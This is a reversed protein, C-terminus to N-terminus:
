VFERPPPSPVRQYPDEYVHTPCTTNVFYRRPHKLCIPQTSGQLLKLDKFETKNASKSPKSETEQVKTVLKCMECPREGGFTERVAQEFSSEQSYNTLMWAWAGLQLLALPGTVLWLSLVLLAGRGLARIPNPLKLTPSM